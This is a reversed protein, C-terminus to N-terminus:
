PRYPSMEVFCFDCNCGILTAKYGDFFCDKLFREPRTMQVNGHRRGFIHVAIFPKGLFSRFDSKVFQSKEVATKGFALHNFGFPDFLNKIDAM